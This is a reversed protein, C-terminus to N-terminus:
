LKKWVEELKKAIALVTLESTGYIGCGVPLHEIEGLPISASPYGAVASPSYTGYLPPDGNIEDIPWAPNMVPAIFADCSTTELTSMIALRTRKRNHKLAKFYSEDAAANLATLFHEQGFYRLELDALEENKTILDELSGALPDGRNSLYRDLSIGLEVTLVKLEAEEDIALDGLPSHDIRKVIIGADRLQAIRTEFLQKTKTSLPAVLADVVAISSGSKDPPSGFLASVVRSLETVSRTFFGLSDQSYSIPIIGTRDLSQPACKFGVVGNVSAPCLISGDTETGVACSVIGAAVAVASGTSSGGASRTPDIPNRTIGGRASWGSISNEGRFNAWESLNAKAVIQAGLSKLLGVIAADAKPPELSLALSGATTPFANTDINDKIAFTMNSLPGNSDNIQPKDAIFLLSNYYRDAERLEEPDLLQDTTRKVDEHHKTFPKGIQEM